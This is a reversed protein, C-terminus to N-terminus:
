PKCIVADGGAEKSVERVTLTLDATCGCITIRPWGNDAELAQDKEHVRNRRREAPPLGCLHGRPDLKTGRARCRPTVELAMLGDTGALVQVDGASPDFFHKIKHELLRVNVKLHDVVLFTIKRSGIERYRPVAEEGGKKDEGAAAAGEMAAAPALPLVVAFLTGEERKGEESFTSAIALAGRMVVVYAKCIHLGLGTGAYSKSAGQSVQRYAAVLHPLDSPLVDLGSDEVCYVCWM